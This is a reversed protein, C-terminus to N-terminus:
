SAKNFGKFSDVPFINKFYIYDGQTGKNPPNSKTTSGAKGGSPGYGGLYDGFMTKNKDKRTIETQIKRKMAVASSNDSNYQKGRGKKQPAADAERILQMMTKSM